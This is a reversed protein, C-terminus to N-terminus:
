PRRNHQPPRRRRREALRHAVCQMRSGRIVLSTLKNGGPRKHLPQPRTPKPRHRSRDSPAGSPRGRPGLWPPLVRSLLISSGLTLPSGLLSASNARSVGRDSSKLAFDVRRSAGQLPGLLGIRTRPVRRLDGALAQLVDALAMTLRLRAQALRLALAFLEASSWM